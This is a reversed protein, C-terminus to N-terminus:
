EAKQKQQLAIKDFIEDVTKRGLVADTINRHANISFIPERLLDRKVDTYDARERPVIRDFEDEFGAWGSKM